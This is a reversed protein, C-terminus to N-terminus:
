YQWGGAIPIYDRDLWLAFERDSQLLGAHAKSYQALWTALSRQVFM